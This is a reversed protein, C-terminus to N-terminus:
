KMQEIHNRSVPHTTNTATSSTRIEEVSVEGKDGLEQQQRLYRTIIDHDYDQINVLGYTSINHSLVDYLINELPEPKQTLGLLIGDAKGTHESNDYLMVRIGVYDKGDYYCSFEKVYYRVIFSLHYHLLEKIHTNMECQPAAITEGEQANVLDDVLRQVVKTVISQQFDSFWYHLSVIKEWSPLHFMTISLLKDKYYFYGPAQIQYFDIRILVTHINMTRGRITM